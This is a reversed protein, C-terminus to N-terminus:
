QSSGAMLKAVEAKMGAKSGRVFKRQFVRALPYTLKTVWIAPKSFARVEYWVRKDADIRVGFYEEGKEVHGAVTGYGFGFHDHTDVTYIIRCPNAWWFGLLRFLVLVLQGEVQPAKKPYIRTWSNPFMQWNRLAIKAKEFCARGQGLQIENYDHDYGLPFKAQSQGVEPYSHPLKSLNAHWDALTGASPFYPRIHM